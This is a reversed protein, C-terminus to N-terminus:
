AAQRYVPDAVDGAAFVGPVSTATADGDLGGKTMLYGGKMELQGEFLGTNPTHGIAIFVGDVMLEHTDGTPTHRVRLGTVGGEDGLVEEVEHEFLISVNGEAVKRFLRDQLIKESKLASRRHVLTVHSALNALYLAEEVGTNGGGVVGGPWNEVETTTTLQGGVELGSIVVPEAGARAAYIAATLGAPGSGLIILRHHESRQGEPDAERGLLRDLEGEADLAALDDYGGISRGNIFIQPVTRRGSREIVEAQRGADHTVDIEEYAVGKSKLLAKVRVCYPCDDKTYIVLDSM